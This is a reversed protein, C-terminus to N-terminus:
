VEKIEFDADYNALYIAINKFSDRTAAVLTHSKADVKIWKLEFLLARIHDDSITDIGTSLTPTIGFEMPWLDFETKRPIAHLVAALQSQAKTLSTHAGRDDQCRM